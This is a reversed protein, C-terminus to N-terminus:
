TAGLCSPSGDSIHYVVVGGLLQPTALRDLAGAWENMMSRDVIITTVGEERVFTELLPLQAATLSGGQAMYAAAPTTTFSPPPKPAINGGTMRFRFGDAAQWLMSESGFGIPLPLITEGPDLCTRFGADTFFAPVTYQSAWGRASPNPVLALMALTPLLWRAWPRQEAAAWLAVVVAAILAVYVSLREPLVNDFVPWHGVISWPLWITQHGVITLRFGLTAVVAVALGALLLRGFAARAGRWFFLALILLAPVGLYAGRESDNGPFRDAIAAAWGRSVFANSTPIAFNALDTVYLSPPNVPNSSFGTVAYYVFPATLLAAGLYSGALPALLARVRGRRAPLLAFALILGAALALALTFTVETSILLELGLLPALRLVVGRGGLEGDLFRFCVLVVLPLLFVATVHPHGVEEGLEYSSFGFLYGGV